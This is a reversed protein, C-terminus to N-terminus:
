RLHTWIHKGKRGPSDMTEKRRETKRGTKKTTQQNSKPLKSYDTATNETLVSSEAQRQDGTISDEVAHVTVTAWVAATLVLCYLRQKSHVM